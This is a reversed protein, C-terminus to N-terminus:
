ALSQILREHLDSRAERDSLGACPESRYATAKMRRPGAGEMTSRGRGDRAAM